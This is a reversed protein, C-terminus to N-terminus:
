LMDRLKDGAMGLMEAEHGVIAFELRQYEDLLRRFTKWHMGKPKGGIGFAIGPVWGLRLRLANIRRYRRDHENERQVRYAMGKCRRCALKHGVYLLAVRKGCWPCIFWHRVGGYHCPTAVTYVQQSVPTWDEGYRQHQYGFLIFGDGTVLGITSLLKSDRTWEWSFSNGPTLLGDRALRRIDVHRVTTTLPKPM